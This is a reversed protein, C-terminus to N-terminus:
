ETLLGRDTEYVAETPLQSQYYLGLTQSTPDSNEFM